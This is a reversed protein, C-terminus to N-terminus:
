HSMQFIQRYNWDSIRRQVQLMVKGKTLKQVPLQSFAIFPERGDGGTVKRMTQSFIVGAALGM